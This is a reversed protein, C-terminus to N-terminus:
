ECGGELVRMEVRRNLAQEKESKAKPFRMEWNGYGKYSIREESIGNAILYDFVVKARLQSLEYHWTNKKVRPRGPLNIHGAVEIKMDPNSEMFRLIKPLEPKSKALLVPKNGVFYLNNLDLSRGKQIPPLSMEVYVPEPQSKTMKSSFFHCDAYADIGVVIGVPLEKKFYGTSDTYITDRFEKGRIVVMSKLTKGSTADKVIGELLTMKTETKPVKKPMTPMASKSEWKVIEITARRNSQRGSDTSNTAVPKTEGFDLITLVNVPIGMKMLAIKVAKSRRQSLAMNDELSGISDTHATIEIKLNEKGSIFNKIGELVSDADPRLNHKGFDFYVESSFITEAGKYESQAFANLAIFFLLLISQIRSAM